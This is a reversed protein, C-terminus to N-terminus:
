RSRKKTLILLARCIALILRSCSLVNKVTTRMPLIRLAATPKFRVWGATVVLILDRSSLRDTLSNSRLEPPKFSVLRPSISIRYASCYSCKDSSTSSFITAASPMLSWKRKPTESVMASHQSGWNTDAKCRCKGFKSISIFTSIEILKRAARSSRSTSRAMKSPGM